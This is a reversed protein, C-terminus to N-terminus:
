TYLKVLQFIFFNRNRIGRMQSRFMKVKANFAEASANTSSRRLYNLITTAHNKFIKIVSRFNSNGLEMVKEYWKNMREMAKTPSIKANFISRLEM